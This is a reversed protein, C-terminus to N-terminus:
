PARRNLLGLQGTGSKTKEVAGKPIWSAGNIKTVIMDKRKIIEETVM